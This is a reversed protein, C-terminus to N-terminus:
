AAELEEVPEYSVVEADNFAEQYDNLPAEAGMTGKLEPLEFSTAPPIPMGSNIDIIEFDDQTGLGAIGALYDKGLAANALESVGIGACGIGAMKLHQNKSVAYTTMGVGAVVLPKVYKSLNESMEVGLLGQVPPSTVAKDLFHSLAKGVVMGGFAAFMKDYNGAVKQFTVKKENAM